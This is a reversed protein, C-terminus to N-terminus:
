QLNNLKHVAVQSIGINLGIEKMKYNSQIAKEIYLMKYHTLERKRSGRKIEDFIRDDGVVEYLIKDLTKRETKIIPIDISTPKVEGIISVEEFEASEELLTSDMFKSYEVLANKRNESFMCLVFDIDVIKDQINKRYYSDSSWYYDSVKKCMKAKVPNQHVYRILSLLYKDDKVLIGKYRDQFVHGSKNYTCNYYKSFKLDIRHMIQSIPVEHSRIVIHYHNDMIVFGYIEFRMIEKSEVIINLLQKKVDDNKFIYEKNNGRQVIHYVGGEFQIRPKRGM